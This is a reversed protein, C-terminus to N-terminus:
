ASAGVLGPQTAQTVPQEIYTQAMQQNPLGGPNENISRGMPNIGQGSQEPQPQMPGGQMAIQKNVNERLKTIFDNIRMRANPDLMEFDPGQVFAAFTAVYAENPLKDPEVYRGQILAEIDREADRQDARQDNLKVGVVDLYEEFQGTGSAKMWNILRRVREKPNPVNLDELLTYPDISQAELLQLADARRTTKDITSAYVSLAIDTEITERNLKVSEYEGSANTVQYPERDDDYFLRMFQFAWGAMEKVVREVVVQAIDDSTVLDGERSIQKSIGSASSTEGRTTGHTSFISDIRGRLDLIDNYLIPNPPSAPITM